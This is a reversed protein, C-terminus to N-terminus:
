KRRVLKEEEETGRVGGGDMGRLGGEKELGERIEGRRM